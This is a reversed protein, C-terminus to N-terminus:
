HAYFLELLIGSVVATRGPWWQDERNALTEILLIAANGLFTLVVMCQTIKFITKIGPPLDKVAAAEKVQNASRRRIPLPRGGPGRMAHIKVKTDDPSTKIGHYIFAAIFVVILIAPYATRTYNLVKLTSELAGVDPEAPM